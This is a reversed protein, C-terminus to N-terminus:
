QATTKWAALFRLTSKKKLYLLNQDSCNICMIKLSTADKSRTEKDRLCYAAATKAM